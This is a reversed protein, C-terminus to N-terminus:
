DRENNDGMLEQNEYINGIVEEDTWDCLRDIWTHDSVMQKVGWAALEENWIVEGRGGNTDIIDGEYIEKGNRDKLGTFQMKIGNLYYDFQTYDEAGEPISYPIGSPDIGVGYIMKESDKDWVRFKAPIM